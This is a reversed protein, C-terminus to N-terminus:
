DNPRVRADVAECLTTAQELKEALAEAESVDFGVDLMFANEESVYVRGGHKPDYTYTVNIGGETAVKKRATENKEEAVGKLAKFQQDSDWLLPAVNQAQQPTLRVSSMGFSGSALRVYITEDTKVVRMVADGSEVVTWEFEWNRIRIPRGSDQAIALHVGLGFLVVVLVAKRFQM